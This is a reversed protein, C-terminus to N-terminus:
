CAPRRHMPKLLACFVWPRMSRRVTKALFILSGVQPSNPQALRAQAIKLSPNNQLAETVLRNLQPDGFGEWWQAPINTAEASATAQDLATADRLVASPAIGSMDACGTMGTAILGVAAVSAATVLAMRLSARWLPLSQLDTMEPQASLEQVSANREAQQINM